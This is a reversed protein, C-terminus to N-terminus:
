PKQQHFNESSQCLWPFAIPSSALVQGIKLVEFATKSKTGSQPSISSSEFPIIDTHTTQHPLKVIVTNIAATNKFGLLQNKAAGPNEALTAMM